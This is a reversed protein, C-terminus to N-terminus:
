VLPDLLLLGTTIQEDWGEGKPAVFVLSGKMPLLHKRLVFAASSFIPNGLMSQSTSPFRFSESYFSNRINNLIGYQRQSSGLWTITAAQSKHRLLNRLCPAHYRVKTSFFYKKKWRMICLKVGEALKFQSFKSLAKFTFCVSKVSRYYHLIGSLHLLVSTPMVLMERHNM